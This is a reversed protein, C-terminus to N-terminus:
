SETKMNVGQRNIRCIHAFGTDSQIYNESLWSQLAEAKNQDDFVAFLTPGSGSIGCNLAGNAMVHKKAEIFGPLIHQRYPEAVADNLLSIANSWESRHCSDVFLGLQQSFQIATSLDIQKPLISRAEATSMEIGPYCLLWFYDDSFPLISVPKDEDLTMLQLGGLYCPAVNDFHISGSIRGEAEGMMMLLEAESFLDDAFRNVAAFAAVISAASSGLGSGVPLNKTLHTNLAPLQYGKDKAQLNFMDICQSVINDAPNSPLRHAFNGDVSFTSEANDSSEVTVVDGVLTGDIPSVAAGLVDFGVSVNGISAPAFATVKKM